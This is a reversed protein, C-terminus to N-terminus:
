NSRFSKIRETVLLACSFSGLRLRQAKAFQDHDKANLDVLNQKVGDREQYSSANTSVKQMTTSSFRLSRSSISRIGVSCEINDDHSAAQRFLYSV